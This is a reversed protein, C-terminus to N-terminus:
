AAQGNNIVIPVPELLVIQKNVLAPLLHVLWEPKGDARSQSTRHINTDHSLNNLHIRLKLIIFLLSDIQTTTVLPKANDNLFSPCHTFFLDIRPRRMLRPLKRTHFTFIFSIYHTYPSLSTSVHITFHIQMLHFHHQQFTQEIILM